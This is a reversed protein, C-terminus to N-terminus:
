LLELSSVECDTLAGTNEKLNAIFWAYMMEKIGVCEGSVQHGGFYAKGRVQKGLYAEELTSHILQIEKEGVPAPLNHLPNNKNM